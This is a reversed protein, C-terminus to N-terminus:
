SITAHSGSTMTQLPERGIYRIAYNCVFLRVFSRSFVFVCKRRRVVYPSQACMIQTHIWSLTLWRSLPAGMVAPCYLGWTDCGLPELLSGRTQVCPPADSHFGPLPSGHVMWAVAEVVFPRLNPMLFKLRKVVYGWQDGLGAVTLWRCVKYMVLGNRFKRAVIGDVVDTNIGAECGSSSVPSSSAGVATGRVAPSLGFGNAAAAATRHPPSPPSDQAAMYHVVTDFFGRINQM